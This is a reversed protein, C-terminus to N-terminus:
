FAFKINKTNDNVLLLSDADIAVLAYHKVGDCAILCRKKGDKVNKILQYKTALDSIFPRACFNSNCGTADVSLYLSPAIELNVQMGMLIQETMSTSHTRKQLHNPFKERSITKNNIYTQLICFSTLILYISMKM